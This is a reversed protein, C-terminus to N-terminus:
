RERRGHHHPQGVRGRREPSLHDLREAGTPDSAPASLPTNMDNVVEAPSEARNYVRVDDLSGNFFQSPRVDAAMYLQSDRATISGALSPSSVLNGNVYFRASTGNFVIALHSWQGLALPSGM